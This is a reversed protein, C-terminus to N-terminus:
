LELFGSRKGKEKKPQTSPKRSSSTLPPNSIPQDSIKTPPSVRKKSDSYQQRLVQEASKVKAKKSEGVFLVKLAPIKMTMFGLAVGAASAVFDTHFPEAGYLVMMFVELGCFFLVFYIVPMPILAFLYFPDRPWMAGYAVMVAFIAASMSTAPIIALQPVFMRLLFGALTSIYAVILFFRIFRGGGWEREVKPGFVLLLFMHFFFLWWACSTVGFWPATLLGWFRGSMVAAPLLYLTAIFLQASVPMRVKFMAIAWLILFIVLLRRTWLAGQTWGGEMGMRYVREHQRHHEPMDPYM